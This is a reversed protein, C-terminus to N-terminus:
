SQFMEIDSLLFIHPYLYTTERVSLNSWERNLCCLEISYFDALLSLRNSCLVLYNNANWCDYSQWKVMVTTRSNFRGRESEIITWAMMKNQNRGYEIVQVFRLNIVVWQFLFKEFCCSEYWSSWTKVYRCYLVTKNAMPLKSNNALSWGASAIDLLMLLKNILNVKLAVDSLSPYVIVALEFLLWEVHSHIRIHPLESFSASPKGVKDQNNWNKGLM